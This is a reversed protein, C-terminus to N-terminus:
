LIHHPKKFPNKITLLCKKNIPHNIAMPPLASPSPDPLSPSHSALRGKIIDTHIIYNVRALTRQFDGTFSTSLAGDDKIHQFEKILCRKFEPSLRSGLKFAINKHTYTEGYCRTKTHLGIADATDIWKKASLFGRNRGGKNRIEEFVPSNSIPTPNNVGEWLDFFLVSDKIKLWQEILPSGRM